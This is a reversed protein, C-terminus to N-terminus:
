LKFDKLMGTELIDCISNLPFKQTRLKSAAANRGKINLLQICKEAGKVVDRVCWSGWWAAEETITGGGGIFLDVYALLSQLDVMEHDDYRPIPFYTADPLRKKLEDVVDSTIDKYKQFYSARTEAVRYAIFPRKLKGNVFYKDDLGVEELPAPIKPMWAVPDLCGYIYVNERWYKRLKWRPMHFPIFVIKSLPLTLKCVIESEIMDIFNYVPIGLGFAVRCAEPNVLSILGDIKLREVHYFLKRMRELGASLKDDRTIGHRGVVVHNINFYDLLKNTERYKRTTVLVKHGRNILEKRIVNFFLVEKPTSMDIWFKM